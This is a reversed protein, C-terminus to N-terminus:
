QNQREKFAKIKDMVKYSSPDRHYKETTLEFIDADEYATAFIESSKVVWLNVCQGRRSYQEKAFLAAMEPTPAHVCGVHQHHQGRKVQQFVEYTQWQDMEKAEEFPKNPDISSRNVRPDISEIKM